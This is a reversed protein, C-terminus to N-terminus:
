TMGLISSAVLRDRDNKVLRSPVHTMDTMDTMDEVAAPSGLRLLPARGASNRAAALPFPMWSEPGGDDGMKFSGAKLLQISHVPSTGGHGEKRFWAEDM